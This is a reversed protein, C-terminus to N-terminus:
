RRCRQYRSYRKELECKEKPGGVFDELLVMPLIVTSNESLM